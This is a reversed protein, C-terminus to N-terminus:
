GSRVIQRIKEALQDPQAPKDLIRNAGEHLIARQVDPDSVATFVLIPTTPLIKRIQRCLLVGTIRGGETEDNTMGVCPPMRIDLVLCDYPKAKIKNRLTGIDMEPTVLITDVEIGYQPQSMLPPVDEVMDKDDEILLITTVPKM